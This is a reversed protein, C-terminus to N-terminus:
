QENGGGRLHAFLAALDEDTEIARGYDDDDPLAMSAIDHDALLM